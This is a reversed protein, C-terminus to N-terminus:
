LLRLRISLRGWFLLWNFVLDLCDSVRSCRWADCLRSRLHIWTCAAFCWQWWRSARRHLGGFAGADL